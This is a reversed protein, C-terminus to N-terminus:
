GAQSRSTSRLSASHWMCLMGKNILYFRVPAQRERISHYSTHKWTRIGEDETEAWHPLYHLYVVIAGLFAGLMQAAIYAPVQAWPFEGAAALALTLAPNLHAGSIRGVAYAAVAVALGWGMTIVIWGSSQAFSKKLATGACVGGGLIILIMTGVVEGWFATMTNDGERTNETKSLLFFVWLSVGKRTFLVNTHTEM